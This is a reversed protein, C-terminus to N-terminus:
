KTKDGKKLSRRLDTCDVGLEELIEIKLVKRIRMAQKMTVLSVIDGKMFVPRDKKIIKVVEEDKAQIIEVVEDAINWWSAKNTADNVKLVKYIEERLKEQKKIM